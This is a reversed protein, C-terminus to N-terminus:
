GINELHDGIREFVNIMRVFIFNSRTICTGEKLRAINNESVRKAFLDIEKENDTLRAFAKEDGSLINILESYSIEILEKMNDLEKQAQDSFKLKNEKIDSFLRQIKEALDGIREADNVCHILRPIRAAQEESLQRESLRILYETIDEQLTDVVEEKRLIKESKGKENGTLEAYARFVNKTAVSLMYKIEYITQNFALEPTELLHQELYTVKKKESEDLPLIKEIVKAFLGIFPLFAIAMFINFFSHAMAIHKEINVPESQLVKGPTINEIFYLFIPTDKITVYLLVTMLAAGTINFIAHFLGARKSNRNAPISALVATITTGINDGLILPFATWFSILGSGALAMTLGITASSSQIIATILTGVFIAGLVSSLPMVGSVPTCDFMGFFSRFTESDRLPHLANSMGEMGIFLLGFGFIFDGWNGLKKNRFLLMLIIGVIVAPYAMNKIKLAIIQGTITTGINAGMIAAISQRLGLLGANLFGVIMVACASSSQIVATTVAGVILAMVRNRTLFNLIQKLKSGAIRQLGDSMTKMGFIFIALSGLLFLILGKPDVGLINIKISPFFIGPYNVNILIPYKGTDKDLSISTAANGDTDSFVTEPFATADKSISSDFKVEIGEIPNGNKDFVRVGVPKEVRHNVLAEQGKGFVIIGYYIEFETFIEENSDLIEAKIKATGVFNESSVQVKIRGGEDTIKTTSFLKYGDKRFFVDKTGSITLKVPINPIAQRNGKGGLFGSIRQSEVVLEINSSDNGPKLFQHDGRVKVIKDPFLDKKSCGALFLTFIVLSLALIKKM